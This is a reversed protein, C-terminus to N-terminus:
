AQLANGITKRTHSGMCSNVRQPIEDSLSNSALLLLKCALREDFEHLCKAQMQRFKDMKLILAQIELQSEAEMKSLVKARFRQRNKFIDTMSKIPVVEFILGANM